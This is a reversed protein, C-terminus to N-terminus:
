TTQVYIGQNPYGVRKLLGEEEYMRMDQDARYRSCGTIAAYTRKSIHPNDALHRMLINRRAEEDRDAERKKKTLKTYALSKKLKKSCRFNIGDVTVKVKGKGNEKQTTKLSPSFFGLEELEVNYGYSLRTRLLWVFSDLVAKVDASSLSSRETIIECIEEMRITDSSIARAHVKGENEEASSPTEYLSYRIAM